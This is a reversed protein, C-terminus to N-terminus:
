LQYIETTKRQVFNQQGCTKRNNSTAQAYEDVIRLYIHNNSSSHAKTIIKNHSSNKWTLRLKSLLLIVTQKATSNPTANLPYGLAPDCCGTGSKWVKKKDGGQMDDWM